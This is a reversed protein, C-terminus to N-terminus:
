QVNVPMVSRNTMNRPFVSFLIFIGGEGGDAAGFIRKNEFPNQSFFRFGPVWAMMNKMLTNFFVSSLKALIHKM